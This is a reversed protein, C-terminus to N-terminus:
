CFVCTFKANHHEECRCEAGTGGRAYMFATFSGLLWKCAESM